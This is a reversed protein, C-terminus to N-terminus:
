AARLAEALDGLGGDWGGENDKRAQEAVEPPLAAFGSEVLDLRTGGEVPTLTFEVLTHPGDLIDVGEQGPFPRWAYSLRRPPEVVDVVAEEANDEWHFRLRGGPRLDVEVRQGFWRALEDAETLAAWVREVPQPLVVSREITDDM